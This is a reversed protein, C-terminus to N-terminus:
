GACRLLFATTGLTSGEIDLTDPAVRTARLTSGPDLECGSARLRVRLPQHGTFAIRWLAGEREWRILRANASELRPAPAATATAGSTASATAGAALALHSVPASMHLYRVAGSPLEGAVGVSRAWDTPAVGTQVRWQRLWPGGGRLEFAGDATRAVTARRWDLAREIYESGRVPHLPQAQAWQ